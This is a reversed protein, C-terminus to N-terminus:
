GGAWARFCATGVAKQLRREKNSSEGTQSFSGTPVRPSKIYFVPAWGNRWLGWAEMCLTQKGGKSFVRGQHGPHLCGSPKPQFSPCHILAMKLIILHFTDFVFGCSNSTLSLPMKVCQILWTPEGCHHLSNLEQTHAEPSM